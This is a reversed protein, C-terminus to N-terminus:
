VTYFRVKFKLLISAFLSIKLVTFGSIKFAKLCASNTFIASSRPAEGHGGGLSQGSGAPLNVASGLVGARRKDGGM